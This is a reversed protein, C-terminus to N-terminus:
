VHARGIKGAAIALSTLLNVAFTSLGILGTHGLLAVVGRAVASEIGVTFLLLIVTIFSRYVLLLTVLIVIVSTATIRIMSKDGSHHMDAILASAGTVWATIGPPAPTQVVIKRVADISEQALLEGQNGALSLQVYAAKGDNSQAGPATLPDGWFDQVSQVHKDARLKRILGDYFRHADDGLPKDGELVIMIVSDSNGENFVQGMKQMAIYSPADKPSLSVSREQGVDELSPIFVSVTVAIALWVLIIPVAFRHIMRAVFPPKTHTDLDNACKVTM